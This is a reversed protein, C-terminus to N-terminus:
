FLELGTIKWFIKLALPRCSQRLINRYGEVQYMIFTVQLVLFISGSIREIEITSFTWPSSEGGCKKYSKEVFINWLIRNFSWIDNGWQEEWPTLMHIAFTQWGPQSAM